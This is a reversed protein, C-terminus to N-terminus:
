LHIENCSSSCIKCGWVSCKWKKFGSMGRTGVIILDIKEKEAYELLV